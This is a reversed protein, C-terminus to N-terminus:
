AGTLASGSNKALEDVDEPRMKNIRQAIEFVRKLVTGSKRGVEDVDADTFIRNGADDVLSRVVLKARVNHPDFKGGNLISAEFADRETGSLERVFAYGGWEPIDVRETVADSKGLIQERTLM